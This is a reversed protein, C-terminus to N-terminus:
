CRKNTQFKLIIADQNVDKFLVQLSTPLKSYKSRTILVNSPSVSTNYCRRAMM